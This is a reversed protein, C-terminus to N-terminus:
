QLKTLETFLYSATDKAGRFDKAGVQVTLKQLLPTVKDEMIAPSLLKQAWDDALKKGYCTKVAFRRHPVINSSPINWEKMKTELLRKLSAIQADTPLTADFNGALCIGISDTNHGITHAGEETDKRAQRVIGKKDIFYQYGVYFGLSSMMNFRIKHDQNCMEFTYNSSDQLPDADSGGAHHVILWKPTAM